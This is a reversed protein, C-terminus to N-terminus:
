NKIIKFTKVEKNNQIVSLFYNGNRLTGMEIKTQDLTPKGEAIIKGNIDSLRYSLKEKEFNEVSLILFDTTPNPFAKCSLTVSPLQDIGVVVFIEYPQQVGQSVTGTGATNTTYIVQGVSYSVTGGTGTANGGSAPVAEQAYLGQIGFGILLMFLKLGKNRM